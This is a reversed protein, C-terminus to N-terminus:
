NDAFPTVGDREVAGWRREAGTVSCVYVFEWADGFGCSIPRTAVYKHRTAKGHANVLWPRRTDPVPPKM